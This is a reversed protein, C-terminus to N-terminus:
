LWMDDTIITLKEWKSNVNSEVEILENLPLLRPLHLSGINKWEKEM